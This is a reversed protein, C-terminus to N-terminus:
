TAFLSPLVKLAGEAQVSVFTPANVRLEYLYSKDKAVPAAIQDAPTITVVGTGAAEDTVILGAANTKTILPISGNNMRFFVACDTLSMPTGDANHCTFFIKWTEQIHFEINKKVSM